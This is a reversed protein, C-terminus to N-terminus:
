LVGSVLYIWGFASVSLKSFTIQIQVRSFFYPCINSFLSFVIFRIIATNKISLFYMIQPIYYHSIQVTSFMLFLHQKLYSFLLVTLILGRSPVFRLAIESPHALGSHCLKAYKVEM